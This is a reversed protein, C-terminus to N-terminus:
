VVVIVIITFFQSMPFSGSAPFSQLFSSFPVVSSSVTPHCWRSPTCSNSYVRHTPSLCPPRAHQLGHPWLPDSMVSCSFELLGFYIIYFVYDRWQSTSPFSSHLPFPILVNELMMYLFLSFHILSRLTLGVIMFSLPFCLYFLESMFIVAIERRVWRMFFIFVFIFQSRIFGLLKQVAFFTMFLVFLCCGSHSFINAFLAVLLPNIKLIDFLEQLNLILVM